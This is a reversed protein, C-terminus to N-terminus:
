ALHWWGKVENQCACEITVHPHLHLAERIIAIAKEPANCDGSLHGLVIHKMEEHVIKTILEATQNNSLHGHRSTIRQKISWPRKIDMSLLEEDYNAEIFLGHLGQVRALISHTVHGLDSVVGWRKENASFVYGVPDVADHPISFTQVSIDGIQFVQGADFTKWEAVVGSEQVLHATAATTYVPVQNSKLFIRLGRTHDGHEHTLLVADIKQEGLHAMREKLQKGSLGADVLVCTADTKM